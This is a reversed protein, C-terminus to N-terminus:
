KPQQHRMWGGGQLYELPQFDAKYSMKATERIWYGLYLLELGQREAESIELLIAYIGLSRQQLAPDFFTYVASLGDEVRDAVAVAALKGGPLRLEYFTTESWPSTLFEMYQGESPNDMSGGPHRTALYRRYLEFHEQDFLPEKAEITLDSNAKWTRRHRRRPHFERIPLRVPICADCGPCQPRYIHKGSRRFGHSSLAGYLRTDKPHNPDAFVTIAEREPLYSCDHPPTAYFSLLNFDTPSTM